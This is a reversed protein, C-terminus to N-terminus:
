ATAISVLVHDVLTVVFDSEITCEAAFASLYRYYIPGWLLFFVFKTDIDDRIEGREIGRRLVLEAADRRRQMLERLAQRASPSVTAQHALSPYLKGAERQILQLQEDLMEILDQRVSGCDPVRIERIVGRLVQLVLADLNPWRRYITARGVGARRAIAEITLAALGREELLARTASAIADDLDPNRARGISAQPRMHGTAPTSEVARVM